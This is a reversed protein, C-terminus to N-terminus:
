RGSAILAPIGSNMRADEYPPYCEVDQCEYVCLARMMAAFSLTRFSTVENLLICEFEGDSTQVHSNLILCDDPCHIGIALFGELFESKYDIDSQEEGYVFYDSDPTEDVPWENKKLVNFWEPDTNQFYDIKDLPYLGYDETEYRAADVRAVRLFDVFSPPLRLQLREQLAAIDAEPTGRQLDLVNFISADPYEKPADHWAHLFARWDSRSADYGSHINLVRRM